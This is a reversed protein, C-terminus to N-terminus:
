SVLKIICSKLLSSKKLSSTELYCRLIPETGSPRIIIWSGDIFEMKINDGPLIKYDSIKIGGFEKLPINKFKYLLSEKDEPRLRIDVRNNYFKGYKNGIDKLLGKLTKKNYAVLEAVLLCALIGDKEPVHGFVTMGGSEECGIIANKEILTAGVYKFGVPVEYVDRNFRRAIADLLRTTPMSRAIGGAHKRTKLLHELILALTYNATIFRGDRDIIGFRDADGDTALGLHSHSKLIINRLEKLREKSPDPNSGGFNPNLTDHLVIVDIGTNKLIYDLYDRGTGYMCDVVIKVKSKKITDLDILKSIHKIYAPRPDFIIKALDSRAMDQLTQGQMAGQLKEIENEIGKTVENSAPGGYGTSFKIGNYNSPNHSATINIAGLAHKKLIHFAIAPTPTDRITLFVPINNRLLISSALAAFRDSMFRTDYGVIIGQKINESKRLYNVIAQVVISLNQATFDDSIIGRWGSTGFRIKENKM